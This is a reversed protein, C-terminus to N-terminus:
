KGEIGDIRFQGLQVFQPTAEDTENEQVEKIEQHSEEVGHIKEKVRIAGGPPRLFIPLDSASHGPLPCRLKDEKPILAIGYCIGQARGSSSVIFLEAETSFNL